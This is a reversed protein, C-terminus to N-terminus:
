KNHWLCIVNSIDSTINMYGADPILHQNLQDSTPTFDEHDDDFASYTKNKNKDKDKNKKYSSVYGSDFSSSPGSGVGSQDVGTPPNVRYVWCPGAIRSSEFSRLLQEKM